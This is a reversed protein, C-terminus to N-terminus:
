RASFHFGLREKLQEPLEPIDSRPILLTTINKFDNFIGHSEVTRKLYDYGASGGTGRKRGLMSLVMQAHRYRWTTLLEDVEIIHSLLQFPMQLIPEDRYLNILLAAIVAQHSLRVDGKDRLEAHKEESLATHIYALTDDLMRLRIKEQEEDIYESAAIVEKERRIMEDVAERYRTTFNFDGFELFPTRELWRGILELMSNGQELEHLEMQQGADFPGKYDRKDYTERASIKLGMMVEIKRFQFSQFGSAPLLYNRFDLFDLATMTELVRVQEVLVKFIEIIRRLRAVALGMNKEDVEDRRFMDGVSSLNHLIEKFWLEYVQHTIIFLLEDHAPDGIEASRLHQADLIKDLQLYNHYHVSEFKKDKM